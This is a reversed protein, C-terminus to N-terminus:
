SSEESILVRSLVNALADLTTPKSIYDNMGAEKCSDVVGEMVDATMAIIWPQNVFAGNLSRIQRTAEIGDMEPMQLDMLIIDYPQRSLSMLVEKGNAAIDARYGLRDLMRMAVKQNVANDEALLIRLPNNQSKRAPQNIPNTPKIERAQNRLVEM